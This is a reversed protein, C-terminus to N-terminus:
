SRSAERRCRLARPAPRPRTLSRPGRGGADGPHRRPGPLGAPRGPMCSAPSQRTACCQLPGKCLPCVLLEILRHDLSMSPSPRAAPLLHLLAAHASRRSPARLRAAGGLGTSRGPRPARGLKVADKETLVVQPPTPRGPCPPSITTTPCRCASSPWARGSAAHAFFREPAALGAAALLPRGRLPGPAPADASAPLGRWDGAAAAPWAVRRVLEGPLATSACPRQLAGPQARAAARRCPERLPGAPLLLGNGAGREDFVLVELTASCRHHQLGDDAVIVDVEPHAACCRARAAARDRGSGVPV